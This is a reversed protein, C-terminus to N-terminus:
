TLNSENLGRVFGALHSESALEELERAEQYQYEGLRRDHLKEVLQLRQQATLVVKRQNELSLKSNKWHESLQAERKKAQHCFSSLATLEFAHLSESQIVETQHALVEKRHLLIESEARAALEALVRLRNEELRCREQYWDLVRALRFQFRAM